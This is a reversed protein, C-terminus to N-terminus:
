ELDKKPFNLSVVLAQYDVLFLSETTSISQLYSFVRNPEKMLALLQDFIAIFRPSYDRLGVHWSSDSRLCSDHQGYDYNNGEVQIKARWYQRFALSENSTRFLSYDGDIM